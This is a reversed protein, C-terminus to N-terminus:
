AKVRQPTTEETPAESVREVALGLWSTLKVVQETDAIRGHEIRSLTSASIGTERAADRLSLGDQARRQKVLRGLVDYRIQTPAKPSHAPWITPRPPQPPEATAILRRARKNTLEAVEDAPSVWRSKIRKQKIRTQTEIAM